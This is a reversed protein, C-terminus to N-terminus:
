SSPILGFGRPRNEGEKNDGGAPRVPQTQPRCFLTVDSGARNLKQRREFSSSTVVVATDRITWLTDKCSGGLRPHDLLQDAQARAQQCAAASNERGCALTNLQLRRLDDQSPLPPDKALTSGPALLVVAGALGLLSAWPALTNSPRAHACASSVTALEPADAGMM